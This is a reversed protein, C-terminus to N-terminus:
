LCIFSTTHRVIEDPCQLLRSLIHDSRRNSGQKWIKIIYRFRLIDEFFPHDRCYHYLEGISSSCFYDIRIGYDLFIRIAEYNHFRVAVDIPTQNQSNKICFPFIKYQVLLRLYGIDDQNKSQCFKHLCSDLLIDTHSFYSMGRVIKEFLERNHTKYAMLIIM